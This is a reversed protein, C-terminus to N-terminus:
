GDPKGGVTIALHRKRQAGNLLSACRGRTNDGGYDDPKKKTM